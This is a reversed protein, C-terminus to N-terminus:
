RGVKGGEVKRGAENGQGLLRITEGGARRADTKRRKKGSVGNGM